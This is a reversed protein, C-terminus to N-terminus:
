PKRIRYGQAQLVNIEGAYNAPRSADWKMKMLNVINILPFVDEPYIEEKFYLEAIIKCFTDFNGEGLMNMMRYNQSMYSKLFLPGLERFFYEVLFSNAKYSNFFTFRSLAEPIKGGLRLFEEKVLQSAFDNMLEESIIDGENDRDQSSFMSLELPTDDNIVGMIDGGFVHNLEHLLIDFNVAVIPLFVAKETKLEDNIANIFSPGGNSVNELFEAYYLYDPSFGTAVLFSNALFLERELDEELQEAERLKADVYRKYYDIIEKVKKNQRDKCINIYKPSIFFTYIINNSTYRIIHEFESGYVNIFAQIVTPMVEDIADELERFFYSNYFEIMSFDQM